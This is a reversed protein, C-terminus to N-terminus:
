VALLEVLSGLVPSCLLLARRRKGQPRGSDHVLRRSASEPSAAAILCSFSPQLMSLVHGDCCTSGTSLWLLEPVSLLLCNHRFFRTAGFPSLCTCAASRAPIWVSCANPLPELVTLVFRPLEVALGGPLPNKAATSM